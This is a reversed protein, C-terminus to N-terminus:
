GNDLGGNIEEETPMRGLAYYLVTNVAIRERSYQARSTDGFGNAVALVLEAVAAVKSADTDVRESQMKEVLAEREGPLWIKRQRDDADDDGIPNLGAAKIRARARQQDDVERRAARRAKDEKPIIGAKAPRRVGDQMTYYPQRKDNM